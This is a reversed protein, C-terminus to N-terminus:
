EDIKKFESKPLACEPCFWDEPLDEFSTGPAINQTPDGLMPDYVYGCPCIYKDM